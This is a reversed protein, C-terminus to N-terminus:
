EESAAAHAAAVLAGGGAALLREALARGLQAAASAPGVVQDRILTRGDPTALLGALRLAAGEVTAHGAIPLRCGGGLAALLAREAEVAARTPADDLPALLAWTAPDDARCQVALAGQGVAPLCLDLPLPETIRAALGLRRLGAVALVTADLQQEELKRLRTDVNGRIPVIELDPRAALLQAARRPSSTAVRARPPLAAFGAATRAVLADRADERPPFAALVLGPRLAGPLDKLSHVACDITGALLADELARAFVGQGSIAQLPLHALQDGRTTIPVLEVALAPYQAQLAARVLEAQRLALQSGRTGLRLPRM